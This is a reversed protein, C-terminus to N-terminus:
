ETEEEFPIVYFPYVLNRTDNTARVRYKIDFVVQGLNESDAEAYVDEVEIRPEWQALAARVEDTMLSLTTYNIPDFLHNWIACGFTPRMARDGPATGLIIAIASGLDGDGASLAIGGSKDVQMPFKIGRGIFDGSYRDEDAM